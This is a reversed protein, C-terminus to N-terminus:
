ECCCWLRTSSHRTSVRRAGVVDPVQGTLGNGSLDLLELFPLPLPPITGRLGNSPLSIAVVRTSNIECSVGHWDCCNSDSSGNVNATWGHAKVWQRGNTSKYLESLVHCDDRCSQAANCLDASACASPVCATPIHCFADFLNSCFATPLPGSLGVNGSLDIDQLAPLDGLAKPIPGSLLNNDLYVRRLSAMNSLTSPLGRLRNESLHLDELATM